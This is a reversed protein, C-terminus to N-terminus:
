EASDRKNNAGETDMPVSFYFITGKNFESEVWIEGGLLNVIRKCIALGIGAGRFLKENNTEVKYFPTFIKDFESKDIGIGTDSVFFRVIKDSTEYGFQIKGKETFKLANNLLNSIVQRIRAKDSNLHPKKVQNDKILYSIDIQNNNKQKYENELENMLNDILFSQISLSVQGAELLSIDIIDNMLILLSDINDNIIKVFKTREEKSFSYDNLLKSFGGAANLPTRIEHSINNLFATKLRDSEEAKNKAILLENTREEVLDELYNRYKELESNQKTIEIQKERLMSNKRALQFTREKVVSELSRKEQQLVFERRKIYIVLTIAIIFSLIVYFWWQKWIPTKIIIEMVLPTETTIGDGSSAQLIFSYKGHNLHNYIATTSKTVQPLKDYGELRYQYNVLLPEKLYVGLYEIKVTYNGPPFILKEAFGVEKDNVKVSTINLVPPPLNTNDFGPNYLWLGHDSGFLINEKSDRFVANLNFLCGGGIGAYNQLTKILLDTTRIRSLGGRHGIWIFQNSGYVISYCYDSLLGNGSTLNIVTDSTIRFVGAGNTAIWITSDNENVVSNISLIDKESTIITKEVQGDRIRALINSQTSVWVNNYNDIHLHNVNNHPLGGRVISFWTQTDSTLDINCVGKKTGIWVQNNKGTIATISNELMGDGIKCSNVKHDDIGMRFVGNKDTGIWLENDGSSFLATINDEPLGSLTSFFAIIEGDSKDTKLLGKNTGIWRFRDDVSISEVSSGYLAEDFTYNLLTKEVLQTLGKGYNGSWINGERDEFVTKVNDTVFGTSKNFFDPESNQYIAAKSLKILGSGFTAVWLNFKSDEYIDQVGKPFFDRAIRTISFKKNEAVLRYIGQNETAIYFGSDNRMRVIESIKTDPIEQIKQITKFNSSEDVSCHILGNYSGLLIENNSIFKFSNVIEHDKGVGIKPVSLNGGIKLIGSNFTGAWVSGDPSRQIDSIGSVEQSLTRASFKRGNYYTVKGNMHGFWIDSGDKLCCTIFNGGLSDNMGYSNIKIGNYRSLGNGTGIWLYGNDDQIISYVYPQALVDSFERLDYQQPYISFCSCFLYLFMIGIPAIKLYSKHLLRYIM